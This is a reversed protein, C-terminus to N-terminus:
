HHFGKGNIIKGTRLSHPIYYKRYSISFIDIKREKKVYKRRFCDKRKNM